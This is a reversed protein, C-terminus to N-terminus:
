GRGSPTPAMDVIPKSLALSGASGVFPADGYNFIGGDSAVMWYGGGSPTAVSDLVPGNLRVAALDGHPAADGYAFM